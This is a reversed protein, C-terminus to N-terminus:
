IGMKSIVDEFSAALKSICEKMTQMNRSNEESDVLPPVRREDPDTRRMLSSLGSDGSISRYENKDFTVHKSGHNIHELESPTYGHDVGREKRLAAIRSRVDIQRRGRLVDSLEQYNVKGDKNEDMFNYIYQIEEISIQVKERYM